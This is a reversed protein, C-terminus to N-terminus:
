QTVERKFMTDVAQIKEILYRYPRIYLFARHLGDCIMKRVFDVLIGLVFVVAVAMVTWLLLPLVGDIRASGLWPQWAYRVGLNEHLLYVGLTYPAIKVAASGIRGQIRSDLFLCFLGVSALFPFIHNYEYPIKLILELSGTKLYFLHLLMAEGFTGFVGILYLLLARSKKQLVPIGFRRLYAAVCFVCLYWICDYGKSDEELRFPLVSKLLCFTLLLLVLAVQFQKKTLIRLGMGVLPLLVYLFLYATLFWYHGMTVPFLLTLYYHTSVEAAPVIGTVAALVGIGVSYLWLQLWLALLRSLKFSSECLFYGSIMMYVNVAVICFAELLWAVTDQASLSATLDPLLGGKGLYHLVVVMLMAVCRLTELNAMREKKQM